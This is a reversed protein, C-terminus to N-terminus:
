KLCFFLAYGISDWGCRGFYTCRVCLSISYPFHIRVPVCMCVRATHRHRRCSKSSPSPYWRHWHWRLAVVVAFVFIVIVGVVFHFIFFCFIKLFHNESISQKCLCRQRSSGRGNTNWAVGIYITCHVHESPVCVCTAYVCHAARCRMQSRPDAETSTNLRVANQRHSYEM